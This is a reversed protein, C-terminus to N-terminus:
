PIFNPEENRRTVPTEERFKARRGIPQRAEKMLPCDDHVFGPWARGDLPFHGIQGDAPRKQGAPHKQVMYIQIRLKRLMQSREGPQYPVAIHANIPKEDEGPQNQRPHMPFEHCRRKAAGPPEPALPQRPQIRHMQHRNQNQQRHHAYAGAHAHRRAVRRPKAMQRQQLVQQQQLAPPKARMPGPIIRGPRDARFPRAIQQKRDQPERHRMEINKHHHLEHNQRDRQQADHGM